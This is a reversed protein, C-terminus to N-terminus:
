QTEIWALGGGVREDVEKLAESWTQYDGELRRLASRLMDRFRKRYWVPAYVRAYDGREYWKIKAEQVAGLDDQWSLHQM